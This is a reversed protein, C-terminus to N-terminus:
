RALDDSLEDLQLYTLTVSSDKVAVRQPDQATQNRFIDVVTLDRPYGTNVVQILGLADLASHADNTLLSLSAHRQATSRERSSKISSLCSTPSQRSHYLDTSFIMRGHLGHTEQYLHFELDFKTTFSHDIYEVELGELTFRGLDLQSLLVFVMQVLPHHSLERAKGLKSVVKEFPVDQNALSSTATSKVQQFLTLFGITDRVEWRDRNANPSGFTADDQGTLRYHTAAFAALLLIYPTVDYQSCMRQLREYLPGDFLIEQKAAKGSLAAPRPFDSFLEAPKSTELESVWYDLQKRHADVQQEQKEWISFDRYQIPLSSVHQLPDLSSLASSYFASLEKRLIDISWGDSIIHHMTILLVHDDEGLKFIKTRWGPSSELDFPMSEEREVEEMISTEDPSLTTPELSVHNADHIHQLSV